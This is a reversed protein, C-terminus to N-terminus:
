GNKEETSKVHMVFIQGHSDANGLYVGLSQGNSEASDVSPVNALSRNPWFFRCRSSTLLKKILDYITM